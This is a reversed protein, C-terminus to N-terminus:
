ARQVEGAAASGRPVLGFSDLVGDRYAPVLGFSALPHDSEFLVTLGDRGHSVGVVSGVPETFMLAVPKGMAQGAIIAMDHAGILGCEDSIIARYKM